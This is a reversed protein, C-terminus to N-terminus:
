HSLALPLVVVYIPYMQSVTVLLSVPVSMTYNLCPSPVWAQIYSCSSPLSHPNLDRIVNSPSILAQAPKMARVSFELASKSLKIITRFMGFM